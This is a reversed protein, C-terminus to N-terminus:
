SSEKVEIQNEYQCDYRRIALTQKPDSAAEKALELKIDAKPPSASMVGVRNVSSNRSCHPGLNMTGGPAFGNLTLITTVM